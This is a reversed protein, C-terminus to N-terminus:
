PEVVIDDQIRFHHGASDVADARLKWRGAALRAKDSVYHGPESETLVFRRDQRDTAPRECQLVVKVGQLPEGAAGALRVSIAGKDIDFKGRWGLAQEQQAERIQDNYHLGKQYANDTEVGPHSSLAVYVFVGNVAFIVGFFGILVYLVHRGKLTWGSGNGTRATM